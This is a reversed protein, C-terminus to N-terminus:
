VWVYANEIPIISSTFMYVVLQHNFWGMQFVHEEFQIM